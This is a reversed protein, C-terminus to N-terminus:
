INELHHGTAMVIHVTTYFIWIATREVLLHLLLIVAKGECCGLIAGVLEAETILEGGECVLCNVKVELDAIVGWEEGILVSHSSEGLHARGQTHRNM